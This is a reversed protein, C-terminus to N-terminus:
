FPRLVVGTPESARGYIWALFSAKQEPDEIRGPLRNLAHPLDSVVFQAPWNSVSYGLGLDVHHVEVERWRSIPLLRCALPAGDNRLGQRQWVEAPMEAWTADLRVAATRLDGLIEAAPRKAGEEIDKNRGADGGPYQRVERGEAAATLLRVFSDANRALHTLVHGVSWGPLRSPHVAVSDDIQELTDFLRGTAERSGEIASVLDEDIVASEGAM